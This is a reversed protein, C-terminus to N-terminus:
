GTLIKFGNSTVEVTHEFHAALTHDSTKVTWRDAATKVLGNGLTAMPEIAFVMGKKVIDGKKEDGDSRISPEEHIERGVGHGSLSLVPSLGFKRLTDGTTKEILGVKIGPKLVKISEFLAQKVGNILRLTEEDPRGVFVTIATDSHYGEYNVGVDVKVLDGKRIIKNSPIGHVLEDNISICTSAPYGQYDLFSPKANRSEIIRRAIKDLEHTTIGPKIYKPLQKLVFGAIKGSKAIKSIEEQTKINIM